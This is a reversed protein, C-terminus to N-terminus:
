VPVETNKHCTKPVPVPYGKKGSLMSNASNLMVTM